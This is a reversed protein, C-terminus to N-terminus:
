SPACLRMYRSLSVIRELPESCRYHAGFDPGILYIEFSLRLPQRPRASNAAPGRPDDARIRLIRRLEGTAFLEEILEKLRREPLDRASRITDELGIHCGTVLLAELGPCGDLLNSEISECRMALSGASNRLMDPIQWLGIREYSPISSRLSHRGPESDVFCVHLGCLFPLAMARLKRCSQLLGLPVNHEVTKVRSNRYELSVHCDDFLLAMIRNSIEPPMNVVSARPPLDLM